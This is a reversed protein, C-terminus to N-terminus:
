SIARSIGESSWITRFGCCPVRKCSLYGKEQLKEKKTSICKACIIKRWLLDQKKKQAIINKDCIVLSIRWRRHVDRVNLNEERLFSLKKKRNRTQVTVTRHLSLGETSMKRKIQFPFIIYTYMYIYIFWVTIISM